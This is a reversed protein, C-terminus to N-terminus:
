VLQERIPSPLHALGILLLGVVIMSIPVTVKVASPNDRHAKYQVIGGMLLVAGAVVCVKAVIGHVLYLFANYSQGLGGQNQYSQAQATLVSAWLGWMWVRAVCWVHRM